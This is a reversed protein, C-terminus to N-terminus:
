KAPIQGWRRMQSLLWRTDAPQPAGVSFRMDALGAAIAAPDADVHGPQSLISVLEARNERTDAWSAAYRLARTIAQLLEPHSAAWAKTVAFVKDPAGPRTEAARM